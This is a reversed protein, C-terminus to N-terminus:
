LTKELMNALGEKGDLFQERLSDCAQQKQQYLAQNGKLNLIASVYSDVNNPEAEVIVNGLVDLANSLPSTIIPRGLLVAEIAVLPLGECFDSTTPVIVAHGKDYINLLDPRNLRGHIIVNEQLAQADRQQTLTDLMPGGGCIHFVVDEGKLKKAMKLLDFVGKNTEIRGAFVLTFPKADHNPPPLTKEFHNRYFQAKFVYAPCNKNNAIEELQRKIEPSCCIAATAVHKFFWADLGLLFRSLKGQPPFGKAWFTNHFQAIVKIGLLKIPALMFWFTVGNTIHLYKPKYQICWGIIRLGHLVQTLYYGLSGNLMRKPQSMASFGDFVVQKDESFSSIALTNLNNKKCFSFVQGSFTMSTESIFDENHYWRNLAEVINGPGEIYILDIPKSPTLKPMLEQTKLKTKYDHFM